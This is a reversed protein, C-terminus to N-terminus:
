VVEQMGLARRVGLPNCCERRPDHSFDLARRPRSGVDPRGTSFEREIRMRDRRESVASQQADQDPSFRVGPAASLQVDYNPESPKQITIRSGEDWAEGQLNVEYGLERLEGLLADRIRMGDQRKGEAEAWARAQAALLSDVM